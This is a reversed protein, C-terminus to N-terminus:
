ASAREALRALDARLETVSRAVEGALRAAHLRVSLVDDHTPAMLALEEIREALEDVRDPALANVAIDEMDDIRRELQDIRELLEARKRMRRVGVFTAASMPRNASWENTDGIV